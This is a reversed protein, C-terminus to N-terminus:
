PSPTFTAARSSASASGPPMQTEDITWSLMPLRTLTIKASAPSCSTFPSGRGIRTQRQGAAAVTRGSCGSASGSFGDTAM